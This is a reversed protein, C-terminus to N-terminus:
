NAAASSPKGARVNDNQIGNMVSLIRHTGRVNWILGDVGALGDDLCAGLAASWGDSQNEAASRRTTKGMDANHARQLRMADRGVDNDAGRHTRQDAGAVGGILEIRKLVPRARQRSPADDAIEVNSDAARTEDATAAQRFPKLFRDAVGHDLIQRQTEGGDGGLDAGTM